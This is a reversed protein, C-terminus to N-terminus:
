TQSALPLRREGKEYAGTGERADGGAEKQISMEMTRTPAHHAPPSLHMAWSVEAPVCADSGENHTRIQTRRDDMGNM